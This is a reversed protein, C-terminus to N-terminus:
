KVPSYYKLAIPFPVKLPNEKETKDKPQVFSILFRVKGVDIIKEGAKSEEDEILELKNLKLKDEPCILSFEEKENGALHSSIFESLSKLFSDTIVLDGRRAKEYIFFLGRSNAKSHEEFDAVREYDRRQDKKRGIAM